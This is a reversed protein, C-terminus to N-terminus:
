RRQTSTPVGYKLQAEWPKMEKSNTVRLAEQLEFDTYAQRLDELGAAKNAARTLQMHDEDEDLGKALSNALITARQRSVGPYKGPVAIGSIKNQYLAVIADRLRIRYLSRGSTLPGLRLASNVRVDKVLM